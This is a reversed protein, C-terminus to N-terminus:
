KPRKESIKEPTAPTIRFSYNISVVSSGIKAPSLTLFPYEEIMRRTRKYPLTRCLFEM